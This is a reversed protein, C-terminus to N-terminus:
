KFAVINDYVTAGFQTQILNNQDGRQLAGSARSGLRLCNLHRRKQM